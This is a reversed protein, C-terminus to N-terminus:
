DCLNRVSNRAVILTQRESFKEAAPLTRVTLKVTFIESCMALFETRDNWWDLDQMQLKKFVYNSM